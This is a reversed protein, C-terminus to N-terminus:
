SAGDFTLRSLSQESTKGKDVRLLLVLTMSRHKKLLLVSLFSPWDHTGERSATQHFQEVKCKFHPKRTHAPEMIALGRAILHRYISVIKPVLCQCVSLPLVFALIYRLYFEQM